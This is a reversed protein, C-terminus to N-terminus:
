RWKTSKEKTPTRIRNLPCTLLSTTSVSYAHERVQSHYHQTRSHLELVLQSRAEVSEEHQKLRTRIGTFVWRTSPSIHMSDAEWCGIPLSERERRRVGIELFIMRFGLELDQLGAWQGAAARGIAM